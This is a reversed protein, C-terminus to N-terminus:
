YFSPFSGYMAEIRDADEPAVTDTMGPVRPRRAIVTYGDRAANGTAESDCYRQDKRALAGSEPENPDREYM